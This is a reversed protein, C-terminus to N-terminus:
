VYIFPFVFKIDFKECGHVSIHNIGKELKIYGFNTNDNVNNENEYANVGDLVITRNFNNEGTFTFVSDNDTNIISIRSGVYSIM